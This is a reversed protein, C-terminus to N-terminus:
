TIWMNIKVMSRNKKDQAGISVKLRKAEKSSNPTSLMPVLLVVLFMLVAKLRREYEFLYLMSYLNLHKSSICCIELQRLGSM